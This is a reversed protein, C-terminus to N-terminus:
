SPFITCVLRAHSVMCDGCSLSAIAATASPVVAVTRTASDSITRMDRSHNMSLPNRRRKMRTSFSVSSIAAACFCINLVMTRVIPCSTFLLRPLTIDTSSLRASICASSGVVEPAMVPQVSAQLLRTFKTRPYASM